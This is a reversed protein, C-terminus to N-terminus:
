YVVLPINSKLIGSTISKTYRKGCKALSSFTLREESRSSGKVSLLVHKHTSRMNRNHYLELISSRFDRAHPTKEVLNFENAFLELFAYFWEGEAQPKM